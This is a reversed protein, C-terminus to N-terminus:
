TGPALPRVLGPSRVAARLDPGFDGTVGLVAPRHLTILLRKGPFRVQRDVLRGRCRVGPQASRRHRCHDLTLKIADWADRSVFAALYAGWGKRLGEAFVTVLPLLLFVGFFSLAVSILVVKVWAPERPQRKTLREGERGAHLAISRSM